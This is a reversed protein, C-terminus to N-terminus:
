LIIVLFRLVLIERIKVILIKSNFFHPFFFTKLNTRCKLTYKQSDKTSCSVPVQFFFLSDTQVHCCLINNATKKSLIIVKFPGGCTPYYNHLLSWLSMKNPKEETKKILRLPRPWLLMAMHAQNQGRGNGPRAHIWAWFLPLFFGRIFFARPPWGGARGRARFQALGFEPKKKAGRRAAPRGGGRRARNKKRGTKEPGKRSPGALRAAARAAEREVSKKPFIREKESLRFEKRRKAWKGAQREVSNWIYLEKTPLIGLGLRGNWLLCTLIYGWVRM